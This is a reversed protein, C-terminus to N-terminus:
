GQGPTQEVPEATKRAPQVDRREPGPGFVLGVLALLALAGLMGALRSVAPSLLEAPQPGQVLTIILAVAGQTGVIAVNHPGSQIQAAVAAGAILLLLWPVLLASGPLALLFLGAGGGLLCGTVRQTMREAVLRADRQPAGTLAPVGMAAAISIGMQDLDPLEMVRWVVPVLAVAIGTRLGHNLMYRNAGLLSRWGPAAPAPPEGAPLLIALLLAALCGLVIEAFRTAAVSLALSPDNIAGLVVIVMTIGGLLWAYPHASVLNGLVAFTGAAFLLLLMAASDFAVFRYMLLAAAAGLATGLIRHAAKDLLRAQTPQSCVFASIGAWYPQNLRLALALMVALGVGLGAALSARARPGRVTIEQFEARVSALLPVLLGSV